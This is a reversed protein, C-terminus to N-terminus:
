DSYCCVEFVAAPCHDNPHELKIMIKDTVAPEALRVENRGLYNGEARHLLRGLGDEITYDRVVFPVREEPHEMLVSELPHDYDPDFFLVMWSIRVNQEWSIIITPEPDSPDAIWANTVSGPRIFGNRINEIGALPVPPNISMALNHGAPRKAPTWFEFSEIGSGKPAEQKGYNGVAHNHKNFISLIGTYRMQSCKVLVAENAHFCIFVFQDRAMDARFTYVLEQKGEEVEHEQVDLIIDPTHNAPKEAIRLDAKVKTSEGAMVWVRIQLQEQDAVPIMQCAATELSLWPGDGPIERLVFVSSAQLQAAVVLNKEDQLPIHPISQGSLNLAQQLQDMHDRQLLDRPLLKDRACIAAAMGVAQGGHACTAMVRTSGFAVHTCSIIRGALFLNRINKSYYCRFPIQYIGRTHYQNCSPQDAYVGDAPHLDMAWGGFAVADEHMRQEVLDPQSLMYHGEFRRSERKGPITGVWELTYTEAEPYHGSNKIFDWIGYVIKWLEWKIEESQHVTDLRGGYEVWWFYAGQDNARISRIKPIREFEKLAFSPPVYKVAQGVDKSYFYLTHGLLEGYTSDPALGEGFEGPDEAGMRFAAGALFGVIGDGSADAFLPASLEYQTSNQPCFAFVKRIRDPGDKELDFVATNLLLHINKELTTKELLITDLILPNGERNRYLNETLIEDIVGGERAWRNNNGMHSTAGLIWLRIESSANGGLVPRDQILVVKIGARAATIAACTGAMGGGTIVLDAQVARTFLARKEKDAQHIIM